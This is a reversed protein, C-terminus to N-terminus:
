GYTIGRCSFFDFIFKKCIKLPHFYSNRITLRMESIAKIVVANNFKGFVNGLEHIM